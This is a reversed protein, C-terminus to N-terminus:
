EATVHHYRFAGRMASRGRVDLDLGHWPMSLRIRRAAAVDAPDGLVESLRAGSLRMPAGAPGVGAISESEIVRDVTLRTQPGVTEVVIEARTAALIAGLVRSLDGLPGGYHGTFAGILAEAQRDDAGKDVFLLVNQHANDRHGQHTSVSVVIRGAVEVGDIRGSRVVWAFVGTCEDGDPGKGTWCPCITFCDCVELFDGEMEYGAARAAPIPLRESSSAQLMATDHGNM